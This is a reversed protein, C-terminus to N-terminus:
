PAESAGQSRGPIRKHQALLEWLMLQHRRVSEWDLSCLTQRGEGRGFMPRLEAVLGADGDGTAANDRASM